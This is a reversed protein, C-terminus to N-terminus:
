LLLLPLKNMVAKLWNDIRDMLPKLKAALDEKSCATTASKKKAELLTNSDKVRQTLSEVTNQFSSLDNSNKSDIMFKVNEESIIAHGKFEEDTRKKM